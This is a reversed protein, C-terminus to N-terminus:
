LTWLQVNEEIVMVFVMSFMSLSKNEEDTCAQYQYQYEVSRSSEPSVTSFIVPPGTICHVETDLSNDNETHPCATKIM